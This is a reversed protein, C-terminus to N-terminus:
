HNFLSHYKLVMSYLVAVFLFLNNICEAVQIFRSPIINLSFVWDLLIGFGLPLM